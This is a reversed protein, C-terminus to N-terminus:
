DGFSRALILVKVPLGFRSIISQCPPSHILESALDQSSFKGVYIQTQQGRDSGYKDGDNARYSRSCQLRRGHHLARALVSVEYLPRRSQFVSSRPSLSPNAAVSRTYRILRAGVPSDQAWSRWGSTLRQALRKCSCRPPRCLCQSILNATDAFPSRTGARARVISLLHLSSDSELMQGSHEIEAARRQAFELNDCPSALHTCFFM